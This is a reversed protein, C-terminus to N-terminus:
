FLSGRERARGGTIERAGGGQRPNARWGGGGRSNVFVCLGRGRRTYKQIGRMAGQEGKLEDQKTICVRGTSQGEKRRGCVM